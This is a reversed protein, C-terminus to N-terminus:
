FAANFAETASTFGVSQCVYAYLKMQGLQTGDTAADVDTLTDAVTVSDSKIIASNIEYTDDGVVPADLYAYVKGGNKGTVGVLEVWDANIEYSINNQTTDVIEVFVYASINTNINAKLVPDKAIEMGPVADSYTNAIVKVDTDLTYGTKTTNLTAKSEKLNFNFDPDEGDPITPDIIQGAGAAIFTNTVADQTTATLYAIAGIAFFCCFVLILGGILFAKKTNDKKM